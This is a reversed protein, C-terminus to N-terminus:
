SAPWLGERDLRVQIVQENVNFKQQMAECFGSRFAQTRRMGTQRLKSDLDELFEQLRPQPVLLRGAFENAEEEITYIRGEYSDNWRAFDPLSAFNRAQPLARHLFYHGLEHAVTFRLRRAKWEPGSEWYVYEREDVYIGTFDARIAAAIRYKSDLDPFPIIDLRLDVEALTFVDVPLEGGQCSPHKRRESEVRDWIDKM